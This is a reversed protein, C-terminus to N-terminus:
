PNKTEAAAPEAPTPKVTWRLARTVARDLITKGDDSALEAQVAVDVPVDSSLEAPVHLTVPVDVADTSTEVTEPELRLAKALDPVDKNNEKKTPVDQTTLLKLRLKGGAPGRVALTMTPTTGATLESPATDVWDVSISSPPVVTYGIQGRLSKRVRSVNSEPVLVVGPSSNGDRVAFWQVVDSALPASNTASLTVFVRKMGPPITALTEATTGNQSRTQLTMEGGQGQRAVDLPVITHGGRPVRLNSEAITLGVTPMDVPTISIQYVFTEGGRDLMDKIEVIVQSVDGPIDVDLRPDLRNDADDQNGLGRGQPTRVTLVADLPSGAEQSLVDFRWKKGGQLNVAFRDTQGPEAIRGAIEHPAGVQQPEPSGELELTVDHDGSIIGVEPTPGSFLTAPEVVTPTAILAHGNLLRLSAEEPLDTGIPLLVTSEQPAQRSVRLPICLDAHHFDGIKLRFHDPTQGAFASDHLKVTYTGDVPLNVILRPDGQATGVGRSWDLQVGDPGLLRLQLNTRSGLRRAECDIVVRGGATGAFSTEVVRAGSVNGSMAVPLEGCDPQVASQRLADTAILFPDSLGHLSAVRLPWVGPPIADSLRAEIELKDGSAKVVFEAADSPWPHVIRADPGLQKGTIVLPTTAGIQLGRLSVGTVSPPEAAQATSLGLLVLFPILQLLRLPSEQM